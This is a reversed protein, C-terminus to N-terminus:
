AGLLLLQLIQQVAPLRRRHQGRHGSRAAAMPVVVPRAAPLARHPWCCGPKGLLLHRRPLRRGACIGRRRRGALPARLPGAPLRDLIQDLLDLSQEVERIRVWVRANVDGEAFVPVAFSLADYPPYGPTKRADFDRGSARGVYGGAAFRHALDRRCSAPASRATRCRIPKEFLGVLPPFERRIAVILRRLAAQGAADLEAAVGGPVVRDMMLRHGFAAGAERLVRERLVGCHAHM